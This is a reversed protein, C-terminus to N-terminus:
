QNENFLGRVEGQIELLQQRIAAAKALQDPRLVHRVELAIRFGERLIKERSDAIKTIQPAVDAETVPTPGFLKDAVEKRLATVETVFAKNAETLAKKQAEIKMVQDPTLNLANLLRPSLLGFTFGAMAQTDANRPQGYVPSSMLNLALLGAALAGTGITM